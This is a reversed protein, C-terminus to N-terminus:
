ERYEVAISPQRPPRVDGKSVKVRAVEDALARLPFAQSEGYGGYRKRGYTSSATKTVAHGMLCAIETLSLGASKANSAFQHRLSYLTFRKHKDSVAQRMVFSLRKRIKEYFGDWVEDNSVYEAIGDIHAAITERQTKSIGYLCLHRFEGHARRERDETLPERYKANRVKLRWEGDQLSLEADRWEEPRLGTLIGVELWRGIIGDWKGGAGTLYRRVQRLAVEDVRKPRQGSTRRGAKKPRPMCGKADVESLDHAAEDAGAAALYRVMAAKYVNWSAATITPRVEDTLWWVLYDATWEQETHLTYFRPLLNNIIKVYSKEIGGRLPVKVGGLRFM